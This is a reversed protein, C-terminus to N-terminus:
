RKLNVNGPTVTECESTLVVGVAVSTSGVGDPLEAGCSGVTLTKLLNTRLLM